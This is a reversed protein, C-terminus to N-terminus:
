LDLLSDDIDIEEVDMRKSTASQHTYPKDEKSSSDVTKSKVVSVNVPYVPFKANQPTYADGSYFRYVKNPILEMDFRKMSNYTGGSIALLVEDSIKNNDLDMFYGVITYNTWTKGNATVDTSVMSKSPMFLFYDNKDLVRKRNKYTKYIVKEEGEKMYTEKMSEILKQM